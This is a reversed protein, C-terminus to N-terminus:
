CRIAAQLWKDRTASLLSPATAPSFRHGESCRKRMGDRQRCTFSLPCPPVQICERAGEIIRKARWLSVPQSTSAGSITRISEGSMVRVGRAPGKTIVKHSCKIV